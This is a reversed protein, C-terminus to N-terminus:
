NPTGTYNYLNQSLNEDLMIESAFEKSYLVFVCHDGNRTSITYKIDKIDYPGINNKKCWNNFEKEVIYHHDNFIKCQLTNM